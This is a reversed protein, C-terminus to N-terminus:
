QKIMIEMIENCIEPPFGLEWLNDPTELITPKNENKKYLLVRGRSSFSSYGDSYQFRERVRKLLLARGPTLDESVFTKQDRLKRKEKIIKEKTNESTLKVLITRPTQVDVRKRGIRYCKRIEEKNLHINASGLVGMVQEEVDESDFASESVGNIRVNEARSEQDLRDAKFALLNTKVDLPQDQDKSKDLASTVAKACSEAILPLCSKMVSGLVRFIEKENKNSANQIADAFCNDCVIECEKGVEKGIAEVENGVDMENGNEFPITDDLDLKRLSKKVPIRSEAHKVHTPTVAMRKNRTPYYSRSSQSTAM